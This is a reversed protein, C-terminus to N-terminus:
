HQAYRSIAGGTQLSHQAYRSIARGWSGPHETYGSICDPRRRAQSYIRIYLAGAPGQVVAALASIAACGAANEGGCGHPVRTHRNSWWSPGYLVPCRGWAGNGVASWAATPGPRPADPTDM